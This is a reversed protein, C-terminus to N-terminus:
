APAVTVVVKGRAAGSNLYRIADPAAPLAFTRDIVPRLTGDALFGALAELDALKPLSMLPKLRQGVFPSIAYARFTREFGGLFRGKGGEGGVIVLTGSPTLLPRLEHLPRNGATDMILDYRGTVETSAGLSRVFDRKSERAVGTVQAGYGRALQIIMHGIGGGAGFVLVRQGEEVRGEDRLGQLATMGSVPTAGAQEFSVEEPKRVLRDARARALEAYSGGAAVGFVEDGARFKEVNRGVAEVVGAVDSGRVPVRPRRLGLGLRGATPLGTMYHWVGPDVGAARVRVLVEDAGIVPDPLDVYKLVDASGYADQTIAKM